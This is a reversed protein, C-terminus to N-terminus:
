CRAFSSRGFLDPGRKESSTRMPKEYGRVRTSRPGKEPQHAGVEDRFGQPLSWRGCSNQVSCEDWTKASLGMEHSSVCRACVVLVRGSFLGLGRRAFGPLGRIRSLTSVLRKCFRQGQDVSNSIQVFGRADYEICAFVAPGSKEVLLVIIVKAGWQGASVTPASCGESSGQPLAQPAARSPVM